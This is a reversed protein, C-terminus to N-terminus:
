ELPFFLIEPGVDGRPRERDRRNFVVEDGPNVLLQRIDVVQNEAGRQVRTAQDGDIPHGDLGAIAHELDADARADVRRQIGRGAVDGADVEV